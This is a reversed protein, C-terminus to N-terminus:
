RPGLPSDLPDALGGETARLGQKTTSQSITSSDSTSATSSEIQDGRSLLVLNRAYILFGFLQGLIVIPERRFFGYILVLASGWLSLHWFLKPVVSAGRRESAWWQVLMRGAFIVQGLVGLFGIPTLVKELLEGVYDKADAAALLLEM